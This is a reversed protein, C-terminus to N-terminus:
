GGPKASPPGRDEPHATLPPPAVQQDAALLRRLGLLLAQYHPEGLRAALQREAHRARRALLRACRSGEGTPYLPRRRADGPDRRVEILGAEALTEGIRQVNMPDTGLARALHRVGRGPEAAILRLLGAQAATLGLDAIREEWVRRRSRHAVGLLFGLGEPALEGADM